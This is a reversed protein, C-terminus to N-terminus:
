PMVLNPFPCNKARFRIVHNFLQLMPLKSRAVNQGQNQLFQRTSFPKPYRVISAVVESLIGRSELRRHLHIGTNSEIFNQKSRLQAQQDRLVHVKHIM